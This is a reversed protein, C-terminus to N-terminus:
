RERKSERAVAVDVAVPPRVDVAVAGVDVAVSPEVPPPEVDADTTAAPLKL